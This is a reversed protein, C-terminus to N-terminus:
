VGNFVNFVKKPLCLSGCICGVGVLEGHNLIKVASGDEIEDTITISRGFRIDVLDDDSINLAPIDDLLKIMPTIFRGIDEKHLLNELIELSISQEITFIRDKIRRISTVFCETGLNKALDVALSRVYTGASCKVKFSSEIENKYDTLELSEINVERQSLEVSLGKRALDCSRKGQIKVASYVPPTQLQQGIMKKCIIEISEKSPFKNTQSTIKGDSDFTDTSKGFVVSFEYIKTNDKSQEFLHILKTAEGLALVLIGTAMPDLTGIHGIKKIRTIRKVISGVKTSTLGKPKDLIILGNM